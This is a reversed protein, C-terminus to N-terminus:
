HIHSELGRDGRKERIYASTALSDDGYEVRSDFRVDSNQPTENKFFASTVHMQISSLDEENFIDIVRDGQKYKKNLIHGRESAEFHIMRASVVDIEDEHKEFFRWVRAFADTEWKDDSDLFTVYKGTAHALGNNRAASVGANEQKVYVVNDPYQEKYRLCIAESNDPSGDNVLILQINKEFGITQALVSDVTEELYEEVNYIPVVVSFRYVEKKIIFM